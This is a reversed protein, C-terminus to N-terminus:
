TKTPSTAGLSLGEENADVDVGIEDGPQFEALLIKESLPDELYRQIARRLPRAGFKEDFGKEVLFEVAADTLKLTLEEEALRARVDGLLIHVILGIEERTLPHFVITDDVRNLFEPNFAREVEEKVKDRIEEQYKRNRKAWVVRHKNAQAEIKTGDVYYHELQVHGGAVLVEVVSAFVTEFAGKMREGRFGNITRHDPQSMGSLWMFNVNERLAKAIGRSSYIREAYAYVLVKLMM